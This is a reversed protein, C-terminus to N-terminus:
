HDRRQCNNVARFLSEMTKTRPDYPGFTFNMPVNTPRLQQQQQRRLSPATTQIPESESEEVSSASSPVLSLVRRCLETATQDREAAIEATTPSYSLTDGEGRRISMVEHTGGHNAATTTTTTAADTAVRELYYGSGCLTGIVLGVQAAGVALVPTVVLDVFGRFPGRPGSLSLISRRLPTMLLGAAAFATVGQWSGPPLWQETEIPDNRERLFKRIKDAAEM